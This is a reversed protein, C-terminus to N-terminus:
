LRRESEVIPADNISADRVKMLGDENFDWHENGYSRFWEGKENQWEYEFHVAIRNDTFCFLEKRLKYGQEKKWKNKLFEKVEERGNLFLDRNRWKTDPTYALSVKEPDKTNWLNEAAKVKAEASEKTFPPKIPSPTAQQTTSM